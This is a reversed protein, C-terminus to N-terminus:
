MHVQYEEEFPDDSNTTHPLTPSAARIGLCFSLHRTRWDRFFDLKLQLFLHTDRINRKEFL